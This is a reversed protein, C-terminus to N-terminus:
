RSKLVFEFRNPGDARMDATLESQDNYRPPIYQEYEDVMKGLIADKVKRGTKRSATIEVRFKGSMVGAAPTIAFHGDVIDGGASPGMAGRQPRFAISGAPLPKGDLMVTGEIRQLRGACGTFALLFFGCLTRLMRRNRDKRKMDSLERM